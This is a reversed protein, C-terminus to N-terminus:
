MVPTDLINIGIWNKHRVVKVSFKFFRLSAVHALVRGIPDRRGIAAVADLFSDAFSEVLM